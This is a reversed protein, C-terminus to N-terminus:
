RGITGAVFNLRYGLTDLREGLSEPPSIVKPVAHGQRGLREYYDGWGMPEAAMASIPLLSLIIAMPRMKTSSQPTDKPAGTTTRVLQISAPKLNNTLHLTSKTLFADACTTEFYPIYLFMGIYITLPMWIYLNLGPKKRLM